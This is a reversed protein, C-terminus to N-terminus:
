LILTLFMDKKKKKVKECLNGNYNFSLYYAKGFDRSDRFGM